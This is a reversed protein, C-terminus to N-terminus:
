KDNSAVSNEFGFVGLVINLFTIIFVVTATNNIINAMRHHKENNIDLGGVVLFLVGAVLQLFISTSILGLAVGYNEYKEGATLVFKLQSANATLIAIDLMGQTVTKKTAYKNVNLKGDSTGPTDM